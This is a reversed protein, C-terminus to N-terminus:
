MFREIGNNSQHAKINLEEDSMGNVLDYFTSWSMKSDLGNKIFTEYLVSGNNYRREKSNLLQLLVQHPLKHKKNKKVRGM